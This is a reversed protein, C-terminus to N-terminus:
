SLSGATQDAAATHKSAPYMALDISRCREPMTPDKNKCSAHNFVNTGKRDISPIWSIKSSLISALGFSGFWAVDAVLCAFSEAMMGGFVM